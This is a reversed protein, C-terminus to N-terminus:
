VTGIDIPVSPSFDTSFVSEGEFIGISYTINAEKDKM